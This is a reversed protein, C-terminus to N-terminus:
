SRYPEDFTGNAMGSTTLTEVKLDTISLATADATPPNGRPAVVYAAGALVVVLLALAGLVAGRHRRM